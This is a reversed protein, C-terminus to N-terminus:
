KTAGAKIAKGATAEYAYGYITVTTTSADFKIKVWGYVTQGNKKFSIGAYGTKNAWASYGGESYLDASDDQTFHGSANIEEGENLCIVKDYDNVGATTLINVGGYAELLATGSYAAIMLDNGEITVSGESNVVVPTSFTNAVITSTPTNGGGNGGGNNGGPNNGNNDAPEKECSTLAMGMALFAVAMVRFINRKM